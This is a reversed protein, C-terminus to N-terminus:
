RHIRYRVAGLPDILTVDGSNTFDQASFKDSLARHGGLELLFNAIQGARFVTNAHCVGSRGQMQRNHGQINFLATLAYSGGISKNGRGMGKYVVAKFRDKGIYIGPSEIDERSVQCFPYIAPGFDDDGDMEGALGAVHRPYLLYSSFVDLDNFIRSMSDSGPVSVAARYAATLIGIHGNKGEV